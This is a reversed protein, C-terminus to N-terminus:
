RILTEIPTNVVMRVYCFDRDTAEPGNERITTTQFPTKGVMKM